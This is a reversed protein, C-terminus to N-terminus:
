RTRKWQEFTITFSLGIIFITLIKSFLFNSSETNLVISPVAFNILEFILGFVFWGGLLFSIRVITDNLKTAIFPLAIATFSLFLYLISYYINDFYETGAFLPPILNLMSMLLILITALKENM